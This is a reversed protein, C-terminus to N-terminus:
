EVIFEFVGFYKRDNIEVRDFAEQWHAFNNSEKSIVKMYYTGVPLLVSQQYVIDSLGPENVISNNFDINDAVLLDYEIPDGQLDVSKDWNLVLVGNVGDYNAGQWFPMPSDLLEYYQQLNEELRLPLADLEAEWELIKEADSSAIVPLQNIDPFASIYPRILDKYVGVREQIKSETLYQQRISQIMADLDARNQPSSLFGKHLPVGWWNSIGGEWRAYYPGNLTNYPQRDFGWAGDYDWPLFFFKDSKLPNYMYFNQTITDQNGTLVNIAMWTLYNNRNFYKAFVTEFDQTELANIMSLLKTQDDGREISIVREFAELDLPQGLANLSLGDKYYFAFNQAKYLNDDKDLGRNILYEKGVNEVHTYLGYDTGNIDLHVFQTRLSAFDPIDRFLDFSLKNRMRTLDYPHKQLQLKEQFRWLDTGTDLKIRYSKQDTNRTSKGRQRFTANLGNPIFDATSFQVNLEPEYDDYTDTDSDIDALTYGSPNPTPIVVHMELVDDTMNSYWSSKDVLVNVQTESDLDNYSGCGSLIFLVFTVIFRNNIM